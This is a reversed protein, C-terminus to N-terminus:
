WEGVYEFEPRREFLDALPRDPTSRGRAEQLWHRMGEIPDDVWWTVPKPAPRATDVTEACYTIVADRYSRIEAGLAAREAETTTVPVMFHGAGGIRQQIRQRELLWIMQERLQSSIQGYTM